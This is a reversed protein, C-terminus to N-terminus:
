SIIPFPAACLLDGRIWEIQEQSRRIVIRDGTKLVFNHKQSSGGFYLFGYNGNICLSNKNSYKAPKNKLDATAVGIYFNASASDIIEVECSQGAMIPENAFVPYYAAPLGNQVTIVDNSICAANSDMDVTFKAILSDSNPIYINELNTEIIKHDNIITSM